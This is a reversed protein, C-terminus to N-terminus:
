LQLIIGAVLKDQKTSINSTNLAVAAGLDGMDTEVKDVRAELADVEGRTSTLETSDAKKDLAQKITTSDSESM